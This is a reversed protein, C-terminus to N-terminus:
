PFNGIIERSWTFSLNEVIYIYKSHDYGFDNKQNEMRLIGFFEIKVLHVVQIYEFLKQGNM